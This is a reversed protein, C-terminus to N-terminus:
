ALTPQASCLSMAAAPLGVDRCSLRQSRRLGGVQEFVAAGGYEFSGPIASESCVFELLIRCNGHISGAIRNRVRELSLCRSRRYPDLARDPGSDTTGFSYYDHRGDPAIVRSM